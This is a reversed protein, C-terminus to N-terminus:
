SVIKRCIQFLDNGRSKVEIEVHKGVRNYLASTYVPYQAHPLDDDNKSKLFWRAHDDNWQNLQNWNFALTCQNHLKLSTVQALPVEGLKQQAVDEGLITHEVMAQWSFDFKEMAIMGTNLQSAIPGPAHTVTTTIFNRTVEKSVTQPTASAKQLADFYISEMWESVVEAISTENDLVNGAFVNDFALKTLFWTGGSVSSFVDVESLASRNNLARFAGMHGSLARWGGGSIGVYCKEDGPKRQKPNSCFM